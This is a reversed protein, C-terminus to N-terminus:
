DKKSMRKTVTVITSVQASLGATNKVTFIVKYTGPEIYSHTFTSATTFQDANLSCSYGIPFHADGWEVAYRLEQGQPDTANISWTGVERFKLKKPFTSTAIVPPLATVPQITILSSVGNWYAPNEPYSVFFNPSVKQVQSTNNLLKLTLEGITGGLNSIPKWYIWQNCTESGDKELIVSVGVSCNIRLAGNVSNLPYTYRLIVSQGSYLAAPVPTISLTTTGIGIQDIQQANSRNPIIILNVFVFAVILITITSYIKKM